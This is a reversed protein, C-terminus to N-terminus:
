IQRIYAGGPLTTLLDHLHEPCVIKLQGNKGSVRWLPWTPCEDPPERYQCPLTEIDM